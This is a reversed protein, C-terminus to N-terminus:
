RYILSNIPVDYSDLPFLARRQAPTLRMREQVARAEAEGALRHYADRPDAFEVLNAPNGGMAFGERQQVAHQLEHLATSRADAAKAPANITLVGDIYSGQVGDGLLTNKNGVFTSKTLGEYADRLSPHELIGGVTPGLDMGQLGNTLDNERKAAGVGSANFLAGSDDIEFRWKGDGGKFWGTDRWIAKPDAGAAAMKEAKALAAKDATKAGIGAFIAKAAGTDMGAGMMALANRPSLPAMMLADATEPKLLPKSGRLGNTLPEGYSMRQATTALSSLPLSDALLGLVPNAKGMPMTPDPKQAYDNAASLADALLGMLKNRPTPRAEALLGRQLANPM